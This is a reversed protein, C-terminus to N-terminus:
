TNIEIDKRCPTKNTKKKERVEAGPLNPERTPVQKIACTREARKASALNQEKNLITQTDKKDGWLGIHVDLSEM